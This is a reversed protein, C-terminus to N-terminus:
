VSCRAELEIDIWELTSQAATSTPSERSPCAAAGARVGRRPLLGYVCCPSRPHGDPSTSPARASRAAGLHLQGDVGVAARPGHLGAPLEVRCASAGYFHRGRRAADPRPPRPHLPRVLLTRRGHPRRLTAHRSSWAACRPVTRPTRAGCVPRHVGHRRSSRPTCTPSRRRPTTASWSRTGRRRNGGSPAPRHRAPLRPCVERGRAPHLDLRQPHRATTLLATPTSLMSDGAMVTGRRRSLPRRLARPSSGKCSPLHM